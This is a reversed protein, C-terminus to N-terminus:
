INQIIDEFSDKLNLDYVLDNNIIRVGLLLSPDEKFIVKKESYFKTFVKLDTKKIKDLDPVVVTIKSRADYFKLYKIYDRLQKRTMKSSFLKVKKPDLNNKVFSKLAILKIEKRTM